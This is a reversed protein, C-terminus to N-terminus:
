PSRPKRALKARRMGDAAAVLVDDVDAGAPLPAVGISIGVQVTLDGVSIPAAIAAELRAVLQDTDAEGDLGPCFVVFEDGGYRAVLDSPRVERSLRKSVVVLVEDGRAHGHQDNVPKFDDLDCFLVTGTRESPLGGRLRAALARRNALGTLTDHTAEAELAARGKHWQLALAVIDVGRQVYQTTFSTADVLRTRWVVVAATAPEDPLVALPHVWCGVIGLEDARAAMAPPLTDLGDHQLSTGTALAVSWPRAHDGGFGDLALLDVDSRCVQEFSNGGWGWGIEVIAGAIESAVMHALHGLVDGLAGGAAMVGVAKHLHRQASARTMQVVLGPIGTRNSSVSSAVVDVLGGDATRVSIQLGTGLWDPGDAATDYFRSLSDIVAAQSAEDLFDLMNRGVVEEPQWGTLESISSSVWLVTGDDDVISYPSVATDVIVALDREDFQRGAV